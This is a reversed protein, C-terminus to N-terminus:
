LYEVKTPSKWGGILHVHLHDPSVTASQGANVLLKYSDGVGMKEAIDRALTFVSGLIAEKKGVESSKISIHEKPIILFHVPASPNIDHFAMFREDEYVIKEERKGSVIDCFLCEGKPNLTRM